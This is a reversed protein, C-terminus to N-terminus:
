KDINRSSSNICFIIHRDEVFQGDVMYYVSRGTARAVNIVMLLSTWLGRVLIAHDSLVNLVSIIMLLFISAIIRCETM